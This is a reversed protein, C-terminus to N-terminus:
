PATGERQMERWVRRASETVRGTRAFEDDIDAAEQAARRLDEDAAAREADAVARTIARVGEIAARQVDAQARARDLGARLTERSATLAREVELRAEAGLRGSREHLAWLLALVVAAALPGHRRLWTM